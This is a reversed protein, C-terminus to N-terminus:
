YEKGYGCEKLDDNHYALYRTTTTKENSFIINDALFRRECDGCYGEIFSFLDYAKLKWISSSCGCGDCHVESTYTIKNELLVTKKSSPPVWKKSKKYSNNSYWSGESWHGKEQNLILYSGDENLFALKSYGIYDEIMDLIAEYEMWDEPLKKITDDLFMRTDNRKGAPDKRASSIIGNHGMVMKSNVKFPHQNYTSLEGSTAIRFHLLFNSDPAISECRRLKALFPDFDMYKHVKLRKIGMSDTNIYSFGCSDDNNDYMIKLREDSIPEGDGRKIVLICM